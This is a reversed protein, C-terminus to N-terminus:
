PISIACPLSQMVSLASLVISGLMESTPLQPLLGLIMLEFPGLGGPTTSLLAAGLALIIHYPVRHILNQCQQSTLRLYRWGDRGYRGLDLKSYCLQM